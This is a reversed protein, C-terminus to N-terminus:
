GIDLDLPAMLRTAGTSHVTLAVGFSAEALHLREDFAFKNDVFERSYIERRLLERGRNDRLVVEAVVIDPAPAKELRIEFAVRRNGALLPANPGHWLCGPQGAPPGIILPPEGDRQVMTVGAGPSLRNMRRKKARDFLADVCHRVNERNPEAEEKRAEVWWVFSDEPRGIGAMSRRLLGGKGQWTMSNLPWVASGPYERMLILGKKNVVSFSTMGLIREIEDLGFEAVHDPQTYNLQPTLAGNPSDMILWGGPKLVRWSELFFNYIDDRDLHEINQGSIVMDISEPEVQSMDGATATIWRIYDPLDPPKPAFFEIGIHRELPGYESELWDFYYRDSCGASLVTRAGKPMESFFQSRLTHLFVNFDKLVEERDSRIGGAMNDAIQGSINGAIQESM